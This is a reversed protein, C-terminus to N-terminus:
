VNYLNLDSDSDLGHQGMLARMGADESGAVEPISIQPHDLPKYISSITTNYSNCFRCKHGLFHYKQECRAHCDNCKITTIWTNYPYPMPQRSVEADLIRFMSNVNAVTKSCTPCRYNRKFYELYCSRHLPHSCPLFIIPDTSTFMYEGCIPCNCDTSREICKHTDYVSISICIGCKKCHFYDDGLGRGVRCIGCEDCHYSSKHPDGDWLKCKSCYYEAMCADCSRCYKAPPQVTQCLMCLMKNTAHRDLTHSNVADHCRRCTYWGLCKTCQKKCCRMYHPCGLIGNKEDFFTKELEEPTPSGSERRVRSSKHKYKRYGSMLLKQMFSAKQKDTLTPSAQIEQIKKRVEAQENLNVDGFNEDAGDSDSFANLEEIRKRYSDKSTENTDSDEENTIEDVVDPPLETLSTLQKAAEEFTAALGRIYEAWSM